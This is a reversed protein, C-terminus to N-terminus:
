DEMVKRAQKKALWKQRNRARREKNKALRCEDKYKQCAKYKASLKMHKHIGM